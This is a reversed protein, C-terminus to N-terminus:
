VKLRKIIKNGAKLLVETEKDRQYHVYIIEESMPDLRLFYDVRKNNSVAELTIKVRLNLNNRVKLTLTENNERIVSVEIKELMMRARKEAEEAWKM